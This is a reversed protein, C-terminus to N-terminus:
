LVDVGGITPTEINLVELNELLADLESKEEETSKENYCHHNKLQNIEEALELKISRKEEAHRADIQNYENRKIRFRNFINIIENENNLEELSM